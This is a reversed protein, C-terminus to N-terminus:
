MIPLCRRRLFQSVYLTSVKQRLIADKSLTSLLVSSTTEPDSTVIDQIERRTTLSVAYKGITRQFPIYYFSQFITKLFDGNGFQKNFPDRMEESGETLRIAPMFGNLSTQTLNFSQNEFPRTLTASMRSPKWNYDIKTHKSEVNFNIEALNRKQETIKFYFKAYEPNIIKDYEGGLDILESGEISVSLPTEENINTLQYM